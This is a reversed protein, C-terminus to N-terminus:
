QYNGKKRLAAQADKVWASEAQVLQNTSLRGELRESGQKKARVNHIFRRM